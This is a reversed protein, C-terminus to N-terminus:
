GSAQEVSSRRRFWIQAVLLFVLGAVSDLIVDRMTGTRSPIFTQHWEDLAAVFATGLWALAGTILISRPSVNFTARLGRLILLGLIGYGVVHGAKRLYHHFVLFDYLNIPGLVRALLWYLANGTHESSLYDTSEIAIIGIWVVAPWWARVLSLREGPM